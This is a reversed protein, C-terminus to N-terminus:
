SHAEEKDLPLQALSNFDEPRRRLVRVTISLFVTLFILMGLVTLPIENYHHLAKSIM